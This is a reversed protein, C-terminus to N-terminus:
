TNLTLWNPSQDLQQWRILTQNIIHLVLFLPGALRRQM